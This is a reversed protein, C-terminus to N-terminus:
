WMVGINVNSMYPSRPLPTQKYRRYQLSSSTNRSFNAGNNVRSEQLYYAPLV